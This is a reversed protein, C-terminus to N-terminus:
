GPMVTIIQGILVTGDSSEVLTFIQPRSGDSGVDRRFTGNNLYFKYNVEFTYVTEKGKEEASLIEVEIDYLLQRAFYEFPENTEYYADTFYTNYTEYDGKILTDFYSLFFAGPRGAASLTEETLAVKESGDRYYVLRDREEYNQLNFETYNSDHFVYDPLAVEPTKFFLGAIFSGIAESYHLCVGSLVGIIIVVSLIIVSRKKRKKPAALTAQADRADVATEEKKKEDM